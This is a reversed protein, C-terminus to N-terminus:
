YDTLWIYTGYVAQPLLIIGGFVLQFSLDSDLYRYIHTQPWNTSFLVFGGLLSSLLTVLFGHKRYFVKVFPACVAAAMIISFGHELLVQLYFDIKPGLFMAIQNARDSGAGFQNSYMPVDSKAWDLTFIYLFVFLIPLAFIMLTKMLSSIFEEVAAETSAM